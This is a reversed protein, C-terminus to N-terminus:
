ILSNYNLEEQTNKGRLTKGNKVEGTRKEEPSMEGTASGRRLTDAYTTKTRGPTNTM